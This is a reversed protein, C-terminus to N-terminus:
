DAGEPLNIGLKGAVTNIADGLKVHEKETGDAKESNEELKENNDDLENNLKNLAAEANNLDVQWKSVKKQATEVCGALRVYEDSNEDLSDKAAEFKATANEQAETAKKLAARLVDIKEKQKDIEKELVANKETLAEASDAHRAYANEVKRMESNLIRMSDGIKAIAATYEKEGSLTFRTNINPM